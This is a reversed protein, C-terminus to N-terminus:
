SASGAPTASPRSAAALDRSRDRAAEIAGLFASRVAHDELQRVAAATTGGPSTVRERLVTPHEGTERLLKASGLMTQVVLETATDRPLGLHVGAEIMAEVVFFLYAPGSGSLATVADLYREPVTVVRGTAILIETVRELHADSAHAGGSIAAMGEDVQAPTNAMVRVVATGQPLGGEITALDVGAALSVVLSTPTLAASIEALLETMDQPKVVLVVTDAWAAAALNDLMVIGYRDTLERQREERRDTAVIQDSSWGARLLGSLVTEGMVGAGLVALTPRDPGLSPVAVM